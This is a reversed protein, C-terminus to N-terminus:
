AAKRRRRRALGFGVLATGFIALSAPEPVAVLSITDDTTGTTTATILYVQTLGYPAVLPASPNDIQTNTGTTTFTTTALLDAPLTSFLTNDNNAYTSEVVSWGAPLSNSTFISEFSPSAPTNGTTSVFLELAGGGTTTLDLTDSFLSTSTSAIADVSIISFM